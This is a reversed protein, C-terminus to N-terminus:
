GVSRNRRRLVGLSALMGWLLFPGASASCGPKPVPPLPLNGADVEMNGADASTCVAVARGGGDLAVAFVTNGEFVFWGGDWYAQGNASSIEMSNAGGAVAYRRGDHLYLVEGTPSLAEVESPTNWQTLQTVGADPARLWIARSTGAQNSFAVWGHNVLFVENEPGGPPTLQQDGNAAQVFLAGNKSYALTTGDYAVRSSSDNLLADSGGDVHHLINDILTDGNPLLAGFRGSGLSATSKAMLDRRHLSSTPALWLVYPGNAWLGGAAHDQEGIETPGADTSEIVRHDSVYVAGGPVLQGWYREFNCSLGCIQASGKIPGLMTGADSGFDRAWLTGQNTRYLVRGFDVDLLAGPVADVPSLVRSLEVVVDAEARASEVGDSASLSVHLLEGDHEAVCVSVELQGQATWKGVKGKPFRPDGSSVVAEAEISCEGPGDDACRAKIVLNPRAVDAIPSLLELTPPRDVVLSRTATSVEGKIDVATVRLTRPGWSLGAASLTATWVGQQSVLPSTVGNFSAEVSTLQYVSTVAATVTFSDGVRGDPAPTQVVVGVNAAVAATASCAVALIALRM